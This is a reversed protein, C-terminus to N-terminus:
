SSVIVSQYSEIENGFTMRFPKVNKSLARNNVDSHRRNEVHLCVLTFSDRRASEREEYLDVMERSMVSAYTIEYGM